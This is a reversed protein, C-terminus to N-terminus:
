PGLEEKLFPIFEKGSGDPDALFYTKLVQDYTKPLEFVRNDVGAKSLAAAWEDIQPRMEDAGRESVFMAFAPANPPALQAAPSFRLQEALDKGYFKENELKKTRSESIRKPIDFGSGNAIVVARVSAFPIGANELWAPDTAFLAAINGGRGGGYLALRDPDINLEAARQRLFSLADVFGATWDPAKATIKPPVPLFAIAYGAENVRYRMWSSEGGLVVVLPVRAQGKVGYFNLVQWFKEGYKLRDPVASKPPAFYDKPTEWPKEFNQFVTTQTVQPYAPAALGAVAILSLGSRFLRRKM